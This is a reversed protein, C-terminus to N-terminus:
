PSAPVTARRWLCVARFTSRLVYVFFCVPIRREGNVNLAARVGRYAHPTPLTKPRFALLHRLQTDTLLTLIRREDQLKQLKLPEVIYHEEHLWRCFANVAGIYTNCTVPRM